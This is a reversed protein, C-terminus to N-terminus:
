SIRLTPERVTQFDDEILEEDDRREDASDCRQSRFRSQDSSSTATNSQIRLLKRISKKERFCCKQHTSTNLINMKRKPPIKNHSDNGFAYCEDTWFTCFDTWRPSHRRKSKKRKRESRRAEASDFYRNGRSSRRRMVSLLSGLLDRIIVTKRLFLVFITSLCDPNNWKQRM